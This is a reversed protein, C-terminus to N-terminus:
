DCKARRPGRIRLVAQEWMVPDPDSLAVTVLEDSPRQDMRIAVRDVAFGFDSSWAAPDGTIYRPDTEGLTANLGTTLSNKQNATLNEWALIESDLFHLLGGRNNKRSLQSKNCLDIAM